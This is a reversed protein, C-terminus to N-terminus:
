FPWHQPASQKMTYCRFQEKPINFITSLFNLSKPDLFRIQLMEKKIRELGYFDKIQNWDEITGMSVVKGIVYQARKEWDIRDYDSDWFLVKSLKM